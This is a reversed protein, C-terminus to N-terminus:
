TGDQNEGGAVRLMTAGSVAVVAIIRRGLCRGVDVLGGRVHPHRSQRPKGKPFRRQCQQQRDNAAHRGRLVHPFVVMIHGDLLPVQLNERVRRAEAAPELVAAGGVEEVLVEPLHLHHQVLMRLGDTGDVHKVFVHTGDTIPLEVREKEQLAAVAVLACQVQLGVPAPHLDAVVDGGAGHEADADGIIHLYQVVVCAEGLNDAVVGVLVVEVIDQAACAPVGANRLGDEAGSEIGLGSEGEVERLSVVFETGQFDPHLVLHNEGEDLLHGIIRGFFEVEGAIKGEVEASFDASNMLTDDMYMGFDVCLFSIDGTSVIRM